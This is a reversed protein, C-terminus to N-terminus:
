LIYYQKWHKPLSNRSALNYRQTTMAVIIVCIYLYAIRSEMYLHFKFNRDPSLCHLKASIHVRQAGELQKRYNIIIHKSHHLFNQYTQKVHATQPQQVLVHLHLPHTSPLWALLHLHCITAVSSTEQSTQNTHLVVVSQLVAALPLFNKHQWLFRSLELYYCKKVMYKIVNVKCHTTYLICFTVHYFVNKHSIILLPM